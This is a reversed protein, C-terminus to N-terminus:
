LPFDVNQMTDDFINGQRSKIDLKLKDMEIKDNRLM